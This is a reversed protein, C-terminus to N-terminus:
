NWLRDTIIPTIRFAWNEDTLDSAANFNSGYAVSIKVKYEGANMPQVETEGQYYKVMVDGMGTINTATKIDATKAMGDYTLSGPATFVFNKAAPDAKQIEYTVSATVGGM